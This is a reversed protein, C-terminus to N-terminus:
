DEWIVEDNIITAFPEAIYVDVKSSKFWQWWRPQYIQVSFVIIKNDIKAKTYLEGWEGQCAYRIGLSILILWLLIAILKKM